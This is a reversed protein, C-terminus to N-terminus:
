RRRRTFQLPQSRIVQCPRVVPPYSRTEVAAASRPNGTSSTPATQLSCRSGQSTTISSGLFGRMHSAAARSAIATSGPLTASRGELHGRWTAAPSASARSTNRAGGWSRRSRAAPKQSRHRRRPAGGHFVNLRPDSRPTVLSSWSSLSVLNAASKAAAARFPPCGSPPGRARAPSSGRICSRECAARSSVHSLSGTKGSRRRSNGASTNAGAVPRECASSALSLIQIHDCGRGDTKCRTALQAARRDPGIDAAFPAIIASRSLGVNGGRLIESTRAARSRASSRFALTRGFRAQNRCPSSPTRRTVPAAAVLRGRSNDPISWALWM